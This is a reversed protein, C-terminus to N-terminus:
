AGNVRNAEEEAAKLHLMADLLAKADGSQFSDDIVLSTVTGRQQFGPLSSVVAEFRGVSELVYGLYNYDGAALNWAVGISPGAKGKPAALVALTFHHSGWYEPGIQCGGTRLKLYIRGPRSCQVTGGAQYWSEILM